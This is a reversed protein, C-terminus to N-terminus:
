KKSFVTKLGNHVLEISEIAVSTSTSNMDPGSWKVPYAELFNWRCIENGSMHNLIISGSQRVIKGKLADAYWDWLDSSKTIGRKLVIRQNKVGKRFYHVYDNLGGESYPVLEIESNLGTVETFGGVFLGDLEVEFRLPASIENRRSSESMQQEGRISYM